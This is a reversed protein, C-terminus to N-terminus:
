RAARPPFIEWRKRDAHWWPRPPKEEPPLSEIVGRAKAKCVVVALFEHTDRHSAGCDGGSDVTQGLPVPGGNDGAYPAPVGNSGISTDM